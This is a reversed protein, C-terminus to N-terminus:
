RPRDLAVKLRFVEVRSGERAFDLFIKLSQTPLVLLSLPVQRASELVEDRQGIRQLAHGLRLTQLSQRLHSDRLVRTVRVVRNFLDMSRLAALFVLLELVEQLLEM